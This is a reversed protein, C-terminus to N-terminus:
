FMIKGYKVWRRRACFSRGSIIPMLKISQPSCRSHPVLAPPSTGLAVGFAPDARDVGRQDAVAPRTLCWGGSGLTTHSLSKTSM